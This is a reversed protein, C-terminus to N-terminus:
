KNCVLSLFVAAHLKACALREAQTLQCTDVPTM